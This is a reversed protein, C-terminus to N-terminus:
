SVEVANVNQMIKHSFFYDVSVLKAEICCQYTFAIALINSFSINEPM